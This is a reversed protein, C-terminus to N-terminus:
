KAGNPWALALGVLMALLAIVAAWVVIQRRRELFVDTREPDLYYKGGGGDVIVGRKLLGRFVFSNRQRIDALSVARDPTFADAARLRRIYRNQKAIVEGAM